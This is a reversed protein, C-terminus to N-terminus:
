LAFHGADVLKVTVNENDRKFAEAGPAIFIEDNKGWVALVPPKYERFYKHFEPYLPVNTAYDLLYDLQIKANGPRTMLYYDLHYTEPPVASPNPAGNTYQLFLVRENLDTLDKLVRPCM